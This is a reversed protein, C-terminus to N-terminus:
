RVIICPNMSREGGKSQQVGSMPLINEIWFVAWILGRPSGYTKCAPCVNGLSTIEMQYCQWLVPKSFQFDRKLALTQFTEDQPTVFSQFLKTVPVSFSKHEFMTMHKAQRWKGGNVKFFLL